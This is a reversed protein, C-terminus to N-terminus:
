FRGRLGIMFNRGPLPANERLLSTHNRADEDTLNRARVFVDWVSREGAQFQYTLNAGLLTYGDTTEEDVAVDNQSAYDIVDIGASWQRNSWDIGAGFRSPALRPVNTNDDLEADVTDYFASIEFSGMGDTDWRYSAEAELGWFEADQQRWERVPFEDEELGTDALYVFDDFDTRYLSVMGQFAGAHRRLGVELHKATEESLNPDGVEFTATAVHPGDSLLEEESPARETRSAAFTLHTDDNFHWVAGGSLSFLSHDIDPQTASEIEQDEFRAGFEFRWNDVRREELLFVAFSTTDSPPVFAEEGIAAFDRETYQFGLAGTWGALPSHNLELRSDFTDVDFVTGVEDGEFETHAYDNVSILLKSRDIIGMPQTVLAQFDFKTQEIDLVVLEEEEEEGHEDEDHDDDDHDDDHDDDDHEDEHHGHGGPVGYESEYRSLSAGIQWGDGFFSTGIAGGRNEVASNELTGREMEEEDEDPELEAFGPIDYDDADRYYADAHFGWRESSYDARAGGFIGDSVTDHQMLFSTSFPTQSPAPIRNTRVNVVGGITDSGYLLTAPGRLVEVQDALFPEVSVAHDVSVASADNSSMNNELVGVRAGELGRIIPRGVGPGFFASQVGPLSELTDGITGALRKALEEDTLVTTAQIMELAEVDLATATVVIEELDDSQEPHQQAAATSAFAAIIAGRLIVNM